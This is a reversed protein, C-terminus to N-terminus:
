FNLNIGFSFRISCPTDATDKAAGSSPTRVEPDQGTYNTWTFLNYATIFTSLGNVGWRNCVSTPFAYSLSLSKLRIFSGDEVFRDSPLYNYGEAYLARPINTDDGEQRWRRLVATSQNKRGDMCENYMRTTNAIKQGFRGHFSCNLTVRKYRIGFGGGGTIIPQSNGMYVLDYANIVGDHNIDEYKADGPYVLKDKNKMVIPNGKLDKMVAGEADRAYTEEVNQFVGQYRFGFFAGLPRNAEMIGIYGGGKPEGNGVVYDEPKAQSVNAPFELIENKNRSINVYGTVQWDKTKLATFDTRFEWGRNRMKGDNFWGVSSYGTSYPIAYNKQLMDTTTRTYYDFTFNLRGRLLSLDLGYNYETSTEWKLNNLQMTKPQVTSMSGYNLPSNDYTLPGFTGFYVLTRPAAGTQGYSFRFKAEHLWNEHITEMFPENQLHWAFGVGPFRGFRNSKGLMANGEVNLSGHFVYRDFLTYNALFTMAANRSESEGSYLNEVTSGMIPDSLDSSANGSTESSYSSGWYQSARVLGTLIIKHQNNWDKIYTLKHETGVTLGESNADLSRNAWVSNWQVGTAEQPLFKRNKSSNMNINVYGTYTLGPIPNYTARITVRGERASTKNFSEKAMAVPNYNSASSQSSNASFEGEWDATQYSFYQPIRKGTEDSIYYPSKNPMKAFAEGRVGIWNADKNTQSYYFDSGFRLKNSFNYDVTMSATLRDMGTGITTGVDKSYGLSLRYTAKDGGGSMSFNNDLTYGTQRVEDLWDTNQNFEDFYKWTPNYNIEPTNYLLELYSNATTSGLGVYNAANWIEDQMLATYQNGDLMPITSPEIRGSLKTSFNFRTKGIHGRKTKIVLVGNAGSTGWIATASADKLVEVSEIDTPSINLLAGLDENNANQFDFEDSVKEPYPVGDIVILPDASGNLTNMGRIRIDAKTGPDGGLVMDVGGLQGQLAEEITAVPSFAILDDMKVKQTASVSEKHSIGMDNRDVRRASIVVDDLEQSNSELRVNLSKQGTYRITKTKMGIYSFVLSLKNEGVPIKLTYMGNLDSIAGGLSRNEANVININVGVLPEAATGLIETVKGTIVNNKQQAFAGRIGLLLIIVLIYKIQKMIM